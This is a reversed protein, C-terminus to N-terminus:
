TKINRFWSDRAYRFVIGHMAAEPAMNGYNDTADAVSLSPMPQTICLNEIGVHHVPQDIPMVKRTGLFGAIEMTQDAMYGKIKSDNRLHYNANGYFLDVRNAPALSAPKVFKEAIDKTGFSPDGLGYCVVGGGTANGSILKTGTKSDGPEDYSWKFFTNDLDWEDGGPTTLVDYQTNRDPSFSLVTGSSPDNGVGRLILYNSSLNITGM